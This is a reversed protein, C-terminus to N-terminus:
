ILELEGACTGPPLPQRSPSNPLLSNATKFDDKLMHLRMLCVSKNGIGGVEDAKTSMIASLPQVLISRVLSSAECVSHSLLAGVNAIRRGSLLM